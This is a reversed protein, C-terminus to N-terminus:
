RGSHLAAERYVEALLEKGIRPEMEKHVTLLAKRWEEKEKDSLV